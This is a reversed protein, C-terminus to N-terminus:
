LCPQHPRKVEKLGAQNEKPSLMPTLHCTVSHIQMHGVVGRTGKLMLCPGADMTAKTHVESM